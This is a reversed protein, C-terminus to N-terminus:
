HRPPPFEVDLASALAGREMGIMEVLKGFQQAANITQVARLHGDKFGLVSFAGSVPAKLVAEMESGHVDGAMQIQMAAQHSWYRPLRRAPMDAGTIAAAVAKAQDQGPNVAENRIHRGHGPDYWAACDGVAYIAPDCTQGRESCLIGNEVQLGASRALEDHPMAGIATVVLDAEITEGDVLNVLDLGRLADRHLSKVVARFHAILGKAEHRDLVYNAVSRSVTREMLRSGAEILTTRLGKQLAMAAIEVGILGGGIIAISSAGAFRASLSALDDHTRLYYALGQPDIADPLRRPEAGCALVLTEYSYRSGDKSLLFKGARDLTSITVGQILDIRNTKYFSEPRLPTPAYDEKALGDKSLPPRHYPLITEKTLLTITDSYGATRLAAATAVGSHSAGLIVIGAM